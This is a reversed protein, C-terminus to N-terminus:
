LEPVWDGVGKRGLTLVGRGSFFFLALFRGALFPLSEIVAVFDMLPVEVEVEELEAEVAAAASLALFDLDDDEEEVDLRLDEEEERVALGLRDAASGLFRFDGLGGTSGSVPSDTNSEHLQLLCPQEHSLSPLMEAHILQLSGRACTLRGFDEEEEEAEEEEEEEELFGRGLFDATGEATTRLLLLPLRAAAGKLVSNAVTV